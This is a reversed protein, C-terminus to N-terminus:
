LCTSHDVLGVIKLEERPFHGLCPRTRFINTTTPQSTPHTLPQFGRQPEERQSRETKLFVE